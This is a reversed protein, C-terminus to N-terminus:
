SGNTSGFFLEELFENNFEVTKIRFVGIGKRELEIYLPFDGWKKKQVEDTIFATIDVRQIGNIFKDDGHGYTTMSIEEIDQFRKLVNKRLEKYVGKKTGCIIITNQDFYKDAIRIDSTTIAESFETAYKTDILKQATYLYTVICIVIFICSSILIIKLKKM